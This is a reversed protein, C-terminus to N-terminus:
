YFVEYLTLGKAPAVKSIKGDSELSFSQLITEQNIKGLGVQVLADFVLRVMQKLFGNGSIELFYLDIKTGYLGKIEEKEISCRYIERVFSKVPTGVCFYNHFSKEGVFLKAAENMLNSDISENVTLIGRGDLPM